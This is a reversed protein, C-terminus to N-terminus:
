ELTTRTLMFDIVLGTTLVESLKAFMSSLRANASDISVLFTYEYHDANEKSVGEVMLQANPISASLM